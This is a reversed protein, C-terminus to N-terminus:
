VMERSPTQDQEFPFLVNAIWVTICDVVVCRGDRMLASLAEALYVPAEHTIWDRPRDRRHRAIHERMETDVARATAIVAVESGSAQARAVALSSKGSRAGGLILERM